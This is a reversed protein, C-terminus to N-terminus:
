EGGIPLPPILLQPLDPRNPGGLLEAISGEQDQLAGVILGNGMEVGPGQGIGVTSGVQAEDLAASMLETVVRPGDGDEEAPQIALGMVHLIQGPM